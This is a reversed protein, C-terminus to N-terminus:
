DRKRKALAHKPLHAFTALVRRAWVASASAACVKALRRNLGEDVWNGTVRPNGFVRSEFVLHLFMHCKPRWPLGAPERLALYRVACDVLEQRAAAPLHQGHKRTIELYKLLAQGASLLRGGEPLHNRFKTVLDVTFGLLTGTEAAKASLSPQARPGLTKLDLHQIEYVPKDPYMHKQQRCWSGLDKHIRQVSLSASVEQNNAGVAFCDQEIIRWLAVAVYDQFCGLHLTHMEDAALKDATLHTHAEFLPNRHRCLTEKTTDWFVLPLGEPLVELFELAGVDLCVTSPEM